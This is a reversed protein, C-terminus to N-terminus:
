NKIFNNVYNTYLVLKNVSNISTGCILKNMYFNFLIIDCDM